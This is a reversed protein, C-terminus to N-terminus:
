AQSCYKQRIREAQEPPFGMQQDPTISIRFVEADAMEKNKEYWLRLVETPPWLERMQKERAHRIGTGSYRTAHMQEISDTTLGSILLSTSTTSFIEPM